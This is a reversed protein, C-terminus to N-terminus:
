DAGPCGHLANHVGQILENIEVRLSGNGDFVSCSSLPQVGLAINVGRILESIGVSGDGDCDGICDVSPLATVTPTVTPQPTAPETPTPTPTMVLCTAVGTCKFDACDIQGNGDNDIGDDCAEHVYELILSAATVIENLGWGEGLVLGTKTVFDANRSGFGLIAFRDGLQPTFNGALSVDLLGGATVSGAVLLRDYDSVAVGALEIALRGSGAQSYNGFIEITGPSDGPTVVGMNVVDGGIAGSGTLRGSQIVMSHPAAVDIHGGALRTVGDVQIYGGSFRLTGSQAEVIGDNVFSATITAIGDSSIRRWAGANYVTGGGGIGHDNAIEFTAGRQNNIAAAASPNIRGADRILAVGANNLTWGDLDVSGTVTLGGRTNIAGGGSMAGSSWLTSGTVTVFGDGALTGALALSALTIGRPEDIEARRGSPIVVDDGVTPVGPPNWNADDSWDGILVSFTKMEGSVAM